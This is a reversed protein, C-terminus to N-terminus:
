FYTHVQFSFKVVDYSNVVYAGPNCHSNTMLLLAAVKSSIVLLQM